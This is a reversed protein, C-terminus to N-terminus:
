QFKKTRNRWYGPKRRIHSVAIILIFEPEIAFIVSYPFRPILCRRFRAHLVRFRFPMESIHRIETEVASRFRKGLGKKSEEYYDVAALFEARADPDFSISIM